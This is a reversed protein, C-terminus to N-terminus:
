TGYFEKSSYVLSYGCKCRFIVYGNKESVNKIDINCNPCYNDGAKAKDRILGVRKRAYYDKNYQQVKEPNAQRWERIYDKRSM